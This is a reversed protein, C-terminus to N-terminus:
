HHLLAHARASGPLRQRRALGLAPKEVWRWSALAVLLLPGCTAVFLELPLLRVGFANLGTSMILQQLPWAYIYVGYSLDDRLARIRGGAFALLLTAACVLSIVGYEQLLSLGAGAGAVFLSAGPLLLLPHLPVRAAFQHAAVGLLFAFMVHRGEAVLFGLGGHAQAALLNGLIVYGLMAALLLQRRRPHVLAGASAALMVVVYVIVEHRLSWLSGNIAGAFPLSAFAGPDQFQVSFLTILRLAYRAVGAAGIDTWAGAAVLVVPVLWANVVLAPLIRLARKRAYALPAGRHRRASETVLLGSLFFFVHVALSHFGFLTWDQLPVRAQPGLSIHWSHGLVVLLAAALRLQDIRNDRSGLRDALRAHRPPASPPVSPPAPPPTPPSTMGAAECTGHWNRTARRWFDRPTLARM